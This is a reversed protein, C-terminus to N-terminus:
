INFEEPRGNNDYKYTFDMSDLTHFLLNPIM